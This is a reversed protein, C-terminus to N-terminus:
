YVTLQQDVEVIAMALAQVGRALHEPLTNEEPAHSRGDISPVFIMAAPAILAMYSTDHGAGSSMVMTRPELQKCVGLVIEHLWQPAVVSEMRTSTIVDLKVGREACATRACAMFDEWLGDLLRMDLHRIEAMLMVQGPIVNGQNPSADLKGITGVSKPEARCIAELAVILQGAAALADHRMDMPWTGAHNETGRLIVRARRIGFIGDVAGLTVSHQDLVPGQEIHLELHAVVDGAKMLPPGLREPLGGGEMIARELTLGNVHRVLWERNFQGVIALSGLCAIAFDNAEEAFYDVVCLPHRLQIGAERLARVVELPGMVGLMGDFRGAGMVTDTHSGTFIPPLAERGALRGILNAAEDLRTTLGEAEMKRRIWQRAGLYAESPFRRTWGPTDTETFTALAMLDDMLRQTNIKIEPM